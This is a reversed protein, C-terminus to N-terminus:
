PQSGGLLHIDETAEEEIIDLIDDITIIGVMRGSDSVVPMAELDYRSM